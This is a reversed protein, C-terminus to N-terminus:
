QQDKNFNPIDLNQVADQAQEAVNQVADQAQGAMNQAQNQVTNMYPNVQPPVQNMYPNAQAAAQNMYQATQGGMQEVTKSYPNLNPQPQNMYPNPQSMGAGDRPPEVNNPAAKNGQSKFILKNIWPAAIAIIFGLFALYFGFGFHVSVGGYSGLESTGSAKCCVIVIVYVVAAVVAALFGAFEFKLAYLACAGLILILPLITWLTVQFMTGSVGMGMYSVRISPLLLGLLALAMGIVGCLNMETKKLLANKNM